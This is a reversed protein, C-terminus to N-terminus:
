STMDRLGKLAYIRVRRNAPKAPVDMTEGPRFPNPVGKRAKTAPKRVVSIRLMGPLRFLGCSRPKVHARVLECLSNMVAAVDRRSLGTDEAITRIIQSKALPSKYIKNM